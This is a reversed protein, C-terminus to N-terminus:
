SFPRSALRDRNVDPIGPLTLPGNVGLFFRSRIRFIDKINTM